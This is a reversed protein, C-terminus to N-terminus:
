LGALGEKIKDVELIHFNEPCDKMPGSDDPSYSSSDKAIVIVIVPVGLIKLNQIIKKREDDWSLLICICGSLLPAYTSILPSLSSFPKDRCMKVCALIEMMKDADSMGRGSSFCYAQDGVFMLDLISDRTQIACVFSAAVSVAEEFVKSHIEEKFTDLILAHRVYFEDQYEKIILEGTKAWSKWHIQRMPDGPRYGRLSVFEDSEGVSSALAVGGKHYKRGGPLYTPPLDYRKPLVLISQHKPVNILSYFLGFPDPRAVTIGSLHLYGRRLPVIEAKADTKGDPLLSPIPHKKVRARQNMHILWLWRHYLIKRDWINRKEGGPERASILEEISPRLDELNECFSLGEQKKSTNNTLEIHYTLKGGVTTIRPLKRSVTFKARFFISCIMSILVLSLLFTFVQYITGQYTDMGLVASIGLTVLVMMGPVTFRQTRWSKFAYFFCYSRYLFRYIM